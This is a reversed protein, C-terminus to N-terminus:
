KVYKYIIVLSFYVFIYSLIFSGVYLISSITKVHKDVGIVTYNMISYVVHMLRSYIEVHVCYAFISVIIAIVAVKWYDRMTERM